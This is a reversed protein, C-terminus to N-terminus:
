GYFQASPNSVMQETPVLIIEERVLSAGNVVLIAENPVFFKTGSALLQNTTCYFQM